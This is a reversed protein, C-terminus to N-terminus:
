AMAISITVKEQLLLHSAIEFVASRTGGQLHMKSIAGLSYLWMAGIQLYFIPGPRKRLNPKNLSLNYPIPGNMFFFHCTNSGSSALTLCILERRCHWGTVAATRILRLRNDASSADLKRAAENLWARGGNVRLSMSAATFRM